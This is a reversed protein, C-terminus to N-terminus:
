KEIREFTIYFYDTNELHCGASFLVLTVIVSVFFYSYIEVCDTAILGKLTRRYNQSVKGWVCM